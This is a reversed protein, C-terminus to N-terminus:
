FTPAPRADAWNTVHAAFSALYEARLLSSTADGSAVSGAHGRYIDLALAITPRFEPSLRGLAWAGGQEKSLIPGESTYALM